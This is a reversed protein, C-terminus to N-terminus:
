LVAGPTGEGHGYGVQPIPLHPCCDRDKVHGVKAEAKVDRPWTPPPPFANLPPETPRLKVKASCDPLYSPTGPVALARFLPPMAHPSRSSATWLPTAPRTKLVSSVKWRAPAPTPSSRSFPTACTIRASKPLSSCVWCGLRTEMRQM